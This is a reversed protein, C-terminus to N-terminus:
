LTRKIEAQRFEIPMDMEKLFVGEKGKITLITEKKRARTCAIYHVRREEEFQEKCSVDCKSSPFVNDSDNWVYISDREKGKFEHVTSIVIPAKTKKLRGNLKDNLLEIEELYENVTQFNNNDIIFILVELIARASECYASDGGFVDVIMLQYIAKLALVEKQRDRVGNPMIIKKINLIFDAVAPCSYELDSEPIQWINTNNAKLVDILKKVQWQSGRNVFMELTQKVTPTSRETFLSAVGIMKRPLPNNLTMKDGSVGFNFTGNSELILAPLLGDYNTRCLVAVSLGNDMDTKLDDCLGRLMTQYNSFSFAKCEGGSKRAKIVQSASDSNKHISPIIPNLINDPCRYNCSLPTDTPEFDKPFESVIIKSDSGKFSYICNHVVVGNAIFNNCKSMTIDFVDGSYEINDISVIEELDYQGLSDNYVPVLDGVVLDKAFVLDCTIRSTLCFLRDVYATYGENDLRKQETKIFEEAQEESKVTVVFDAKDADWKKTCVVYLYQGVSFGSLYNFSSILYDYGDEPKNRDDYDKFLKHHPTCSITKGSALRISVLEGCFKTKNVSKVTDTTCIDKGSTCCIVEGEKVDKIDKVGCETLIETSPVLCQSADGVVVIKGRTEKGTYLPSDVPEASKQMALHGRAYFKLVAYQMQSTDQFEDIYIFNYRNAVFDQVAKNPTVYLYKYLLETIEDFDLVGATKRQNEFQKVILDLISPTIDYDQCNPHSYKSDDLRGRYYTIIGEIIKYDENNLPYGQRKINCSDVAKRIMSSLVSASGINTAIGMANLCRKFEADLTSFVIQNSTDMYGLAKQWKALSLELESAGSRLFTCVWVKDAVKVQTGNPISKLCTSEDTILDKIIKFTMATTNHTPILGEVIFLKDSSDVSICTMESKMHLDEIETVFVKAEDFYCYGKEFDAVICGGCSLAINDLWNFTAKLEVKNTWSVKLKPTLANLFAIISDCDADAFVYMIFSLNDIMAEANDLYAELKSIFGEALNEVYQIKKSGLGCSIKPLESGYKLELTTVVSGDSLGWLHDPSCYVSYGTSFTVKYTDRLGQPFVGSVKYVKGDTGIIKDNMTLSGIPKWGDVVKVCTTNVLAKGGGAVAHIRQNGKTDLVTKLETPTGDDELLKFGYETLREEFSKSDGGNSTYNQLREFVSM